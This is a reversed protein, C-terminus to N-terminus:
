ANAHFARRMDPAHQLQTFVRGRRRVDAERWLHKTSAQAGSHIRLLNRTWHLLSHFVWPLMSLLVRWLGVLRVCGAVATRGANGNEDHGVIRCARKSRNQVANGARNPFFDFLYENEVVRTLVIGKQNAHSVFGEMSLGLKRDVLVFLVQAVAAILDASVLVGYFLAVVDDSQQM